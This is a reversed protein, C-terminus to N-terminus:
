WRRLRVHSVWRCVSHGRREEAIRGPVLSTRTVVWRDPARARVPTSVSGTPRTGPGRGPTRDHRVSRGTLMLAAAAIKDPSVSRPNEVYQTAIVEDFSPLLALLQGTLDKERTTGFVLTRRTPPFCLRLTEALAIASAGNHAGDIVLWPRQGCVEVRGAM